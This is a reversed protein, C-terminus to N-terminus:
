QLPKELILKRFIVLLNASFMATELINLTLKESHFKGTSVLASCYRKLSLILPSDACRLTTKQIKSIKKLRRNPRFCSHNKVNLDFLYDLFFMSIMFITFYTDQHKFGPNNSENKYFLKLYHCFSSLTSINM